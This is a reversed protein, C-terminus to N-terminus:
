GTCQYILGDEGIYLSVEGFEHAANTLLEAGEEGWVDPSDWYGSGHQNRTLWFDIGSQLPMDIGPRAWETHLMDGKHSQWFKACDQLMTERTEPALDLSRFGLTELSTDEPYGRKVAAEEGSTSWLAARVYATFFRDFETTDSLTNM